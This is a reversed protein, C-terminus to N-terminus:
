LIGHAKEIAHLLNALDNKDIYLRHHQATRLMTLEACAYRRSEDNSADLSYINSVPHEFEDISSIALTNVLMVQHRGIPNIRVFM